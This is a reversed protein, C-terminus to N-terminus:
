NRTKHVLKITEMAEKVDHVRVIDVGNLLAITNLVTTGNLAEEPTISLERYIMSKRSIGAMVPKKLKNFIQLNRLIEYSQNATKAFGFGPDIIIDTVNLEHLLQIKTAFYNMIDKLLHDYTTEEKMTQPSGKMHMLIYLPKEKALFSYMNKDLEGGSIDNIIAAGENISAEAVEARFTDASILASPFERKIIRIAPLIRDLEEKVSIDAAGPRSSYGGVDLMAAGQQLHREALALIEKEARTRSGTYFSDPTVNIIGMCAPLPIEIGM